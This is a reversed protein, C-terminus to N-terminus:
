GPTQRCQACAAASNVNSKKCGPDPCRWNGRAIVKGDIDTIQLAEASGEPGSGVGGASEMKGAESVDSSSHHRPAKECSASTGTTGPPPSSVTATVVSNSRQQQQQPQQEM